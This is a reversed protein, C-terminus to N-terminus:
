TSFEIAIELLLPLLPLMCTPLSELPSSYSPDGVTSSSWSARSSEIARESSRWKKSCPNLSLSGSRCIQSSKSSFICAASTNIRSANRSITRSAEDEKSIRETFQVDKRGSRSSSSRKGKGLNTSSWRQRVKVEWSSISGSVSCVAGVNNGRNRLSWIRPYTSWRGSENPWLRPFIAGLRVWM